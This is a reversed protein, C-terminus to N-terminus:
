APIKPGITVPDVLPAVYTLEATGQDTTGSLNWAAETGAFAGSKTVKFLHPTAEPNGPVVLDDLDAWKAASWAYGVKPTLTILCPLLTNALLSYSSGSFVGSNTRNGTSYETIIVLWDTIALSEIINGSFRPYRAYLVEVAQQTVRANPVASSGHLVEVSQQTVRANPVAASSYLVEVAQQTVRAATM